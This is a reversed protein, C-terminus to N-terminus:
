TRRGPGRLRDRRELRAHAPASIFKHGVVPQFDNKMLWEEILPGETSRALDEGASAADGTRRRRFADAETM